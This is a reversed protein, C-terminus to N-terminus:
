DRRRPPPLPDSGLLQTLWFLVGAALVTAGAFGALGSGDLYAWLLGLLPAAFVVVLDSRV